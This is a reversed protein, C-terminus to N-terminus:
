RGGRRRRRALLTALGVWALGTFGFTGTSSVSVSCGGKKPPQTTKVPAAGADAAKPAAQIRVPTVGGGLESLDEGADAMPRTRTCSHVTLAADTRNAYVLYSKDREFYFGCAASEANTTVTVTEVDELDKWVRVISLTIRKKAVVPETGESFDEISVVRGEFVASAEALAQAVSHPACKCAFATSELGFLVSVLTLLFHVRLRLM